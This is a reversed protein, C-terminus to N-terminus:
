SFVKLGRLGSGPAVTQGIAAEITMAGILISEANTVPMAALQSGILKHAADLAADFPSLTAVYPDMIDKLRADDDADILERITVSGSLVDSTSSETVFIVSIFDVEKSHKRLQERATKATTGGGFFVINNIMVGGVSNEPYRLLEIIRERQKEPMLGLFKKMTGVGLNGILDTARDPSMRTILDVAEDEDFEEIVQIQRELSMAQLALAAKENPLLTLLEAAHLYPIYEAIQAIEGAPLRGIRLRYGAGSDVARPDGRLFEVYRWDYMDSKRFGSYRGGTIRRLMAGLGADVAKLRMEGDTTSLLLDASRTTRRNLLDIILADLVDRKLLVEGDRDDGVPTAPNLDNVKILRGSRDVENVDKWELRQLGDPSFFHISTVPPYDDELLALTMDAVRAKRGASDVLDFRLLESLMAM